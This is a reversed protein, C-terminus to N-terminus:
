YTQLNSTFTGRKQCTEVNMNRCKRGLTDIEKVERIFQGKRMFTATKKRCIHKNKKYMAWVCNM